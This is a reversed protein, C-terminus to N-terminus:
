VLGQMRAVLVSTVGGDGKQVVGGAVILMTEQLVPRVRPYVDPKVVLDLLRSEDELSLFIIGKATQPRQRVVVMGAVWVWQGQRTNHKVEWNSLIGAARLQRRYHQLIQGDPSHGLLEYEWVTRQLGELRPLEVEMVPVPLDFGEHPAELAGLQWLLECREGLGDVAGARILNQIASKPLKSRWLLDRLDAFPATHRAADLREYGAQGLAKVASLGTRLAPRGNSDQEVTYGWASRHIDPPWVDVGHRRADGLIVEPSYFGM